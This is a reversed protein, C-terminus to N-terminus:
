KSKPESDVDTTSLIIRNPLPIDAPILDAPNANEIGSARRLINFTQQAARQILGLLFRPLLSDNPQPIRPAAV